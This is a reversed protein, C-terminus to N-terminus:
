SPLFVATQYLRCENPGPEGDALASPPFIPPFPSADSCGGRYTQIMGPMYAPLMPGHDNLVLHIEAGYPDSFTRDALWGDIPGTPMHVAFGGRGSAGSVNGAGFTVQSDTAPNSLIDFASCPTAACADPNGIAVFWVTYAHHARLERTRLTATVGNANRVLHASAGDVVGTGSQPHWMVPSTTRGAPAATAPVAVVALVALILVIPTIRVARRRARGPRRGSPSDTTAM